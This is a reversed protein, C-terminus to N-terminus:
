THKLNKFFDFSRFEKSQSRLGNLTATQPIICAERPKSKGNEAIPGYFPSLFRRRPPPARKLDEQSTYAGFGSLIAPHFNRGILSPDPICASGGRGYKSHQARRSKFDLNRSTVPNIVSTIKFARLLRDKVLKLWLWNRRDHACTVLQTSVARPPCHHM